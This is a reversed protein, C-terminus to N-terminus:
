INILRAKKLLEKLDKMVDFSSIETKQSKKAMIVVDYGEKIEPLLVALAARIQRKIRNRKPALSSFKLGISFGFRPYSYDNAAFRVILNDGSISRGKKFVKSFDDARKLRNKGPLM